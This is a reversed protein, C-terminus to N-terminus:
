RRQWICCKVAYRNNLLPSLHILKSNVSGRMIRRPSNLSGQTSLRHKDRLWSNIRQLHLRPLRVRHIALSPWISSSRKRSVRARRKTNSYNILTSRHMHGRRRARGRVSMNIFRTGIKATSESFRSSGRTSRTPGGGM